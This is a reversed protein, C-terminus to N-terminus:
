IVPVFKGGTITEVPLNVYVGDYVGGNMIEEYFFAITGDKQQIMTSYASPLESVRYLGDFRNFTAATVPRSLDLEKWAVSVFERRDSDTFSQLALYAEEGTEANKAPIILIEGDCANIFRRGLNTTIFDGWEGQGNKVDSYHFVNFNRNGRKNRGALLVSGDPLEEIKAEDGNDNDIPARGTGGLVKWNEGFDDSYLVWNRFDKSQNQSTLVCYIRYYDGNKIMRSQMVRGSAIFYTDINGHKPEGDFLTLIDESFEVPHTWTDGGDSSYWRVTQQPANRRGSFFNVPGGVALLLIKGTEKDSVIAADGFAADWASHPNARLEDWNVTGKLFKPNFATVEKGKADKACAPQSWTTGNDDSYAMQLSINSGTGAGVDGGQIRNDYFTVLRGAHPGAEVCTIAPIRRENSTTDCPYIVHYKDNKNTSEAASAYQGMPLVIAAALAVTTLIKKM